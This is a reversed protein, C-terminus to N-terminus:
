AQCHSNNLLLNYDDLAEKQRIFYWIIKLQTMPRMTPPTM